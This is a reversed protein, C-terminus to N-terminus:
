ILKEISSVELIEVSVITHFDSCPLYQDCLIEIAKLHNPYLEEPSKEGKELRYGYEGRPFNHNHKYETKYTKFNKIEKFLPLLLNLDKDSIQNLSSEYDADNTDVVIYLYKKM